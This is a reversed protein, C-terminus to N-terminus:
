GDFKHWYVPKVKLPLVHRSVFVREGAHCDTNSYVEYPKGDQKMKSEYFGTGPPYIWADGWLDSAVMIKAILRCDKESGVISTEAGYDRIGRVHWDDTYLPM